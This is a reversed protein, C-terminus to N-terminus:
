ESEDDDGYGDGSEARDARIQQSAQEEIQYEARPDALEELLGLMRVRPPRTKYFVWGRSDAYLAVHHLGYLAVGILMVIM